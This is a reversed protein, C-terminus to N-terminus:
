CNFRTEAYLVDKSEALAEGRTRTVERREKSTDVKNAVLIIPADDCHRKVSSLWADVKDFSSRKNVAYVIFYAACGVMHRHLTTMYADDGPIDVFELEFIFGRRETRFSSIGVSTSRKV